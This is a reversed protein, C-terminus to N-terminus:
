KIKKKFFVDLKTEGRILDRHREEELEKTWSRGKDVNAFIGCLEEVINKKLPKIEIKQEKLHPLLYVKGNPKVGLAKRIAAPILIQGKPSVDVITPLLM